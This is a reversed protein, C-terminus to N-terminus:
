WNREEPTLKFSPAEPWAIFEATLRNIFGVEPKYKGNNNKYEKRKKLIQNEFLLMNM